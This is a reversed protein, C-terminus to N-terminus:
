QTVRVHDIIIFYLMKNSLGPGVCLGLYLQEECIMIVSLFPFGSLMMCYVTLKLTQSCLYFKFSESAIILLGPVLGVLYFQVIRANTDNENPFFWVV